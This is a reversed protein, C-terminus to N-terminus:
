IEVAGGGLEIVDGGVFVTASRVALHLTAVIV